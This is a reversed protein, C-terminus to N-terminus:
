QATGPGLIAEGGAARYAEQAERHRSEALRLIRGFEPRTRVSDLWPTHTLVSYAYYGNNVARDLLQLGLAHEGVASLWMGVYFAGEPDKFKTAMLEDALRRATGADMELAAQTLRSFISMTTGGFRAEERRVEALAEDRRGLSALILSRIPDTVEYRPDLAKEYEGAAWFTHNVSSRVHPDLRGAQEAAAISANLLGCYRCAQVLGAFLEADSRRVRARELLRIMAERGRGLDIELEAYVKHAIPLDANLELARKLAAEARAESQDPDRETFKALVRYTRALRAWAPAYEPDEKLAQLYLDRAITWTGTEYSLQNARLYFEYAKASTPVDQRLTTRDRASLPVSLSEVIRHALDDQLQFLDGLAFQSTHSWLVTGGPAEILQTSVRLQDGSRMLTGALVTDVDLETALAKLDLAAGAFKSAALSSRVVLSELGSLSMTLADALSFALFDTDADPKLVRFPLVVLRSLAHARPVEGSQSLALAERLDHAMLEARQYRDDPNKALARHIARDVATIASSGALVPPRDHLVAHTVDVITDGGFAPKGALMEFVIAGAAFIDARADLRKGLLQEPAMYRPTGMLVGPLTIDVGTQEVDTSTPRALGFDLLKLGHPTLFVNSPKLDRHVVGRAHLAELAGLMSLAIQMAEPMPLAATTLRKDLPEGELLEMAIFLEGDEEGIEYLPCIGPHNVSAALRAERWFRERATADDGGSRKIMKIAIPRDLRADRAKYVVGMGGEGLKELIQYRGITSRM